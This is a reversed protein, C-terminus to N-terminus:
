QQSGFQAVLGSGEIGDGFFEADFEDEDRVATGAEFVGPPVERDRYMEFIRFSGRGGDKMGLAAKGDISDEGESIAGSRSSGVNSASQSEGKVRRGTHFRAAVFEAHTFDETISTKRDRSETRDRQL